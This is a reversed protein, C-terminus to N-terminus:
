KESSDRVRGAGTVSAGKSKRSFASSSGGTSKEGAMGEALM